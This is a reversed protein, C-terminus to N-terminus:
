LRNGCMGCFCADTEVLAGCAGCFCSCSVAPFVVTVDDHFSLVRRAPPPLIIAEPESKVWPKNVTAHKKL